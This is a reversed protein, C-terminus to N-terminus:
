RKEIEESLEIFPTLEQIITEAIHDGFSQLPTFNIEFYCERVSNEEFNCRSCGSDVIDNKGSLYICLEGCGPCCVFGDVTVVDGEKFVGSSHTKLAVVSQGIKFRSM